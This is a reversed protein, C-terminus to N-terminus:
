ASNTICFIRAGCHSRRRRGLFRAFRIQGDRRKHIEARSAEV